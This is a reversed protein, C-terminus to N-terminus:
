TACTYIEIAQRESIDVRKPPSAGHLKLAAWKQM